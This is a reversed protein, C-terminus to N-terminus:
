SSFATNQILTRVARLIGTNEKIESGGAVNLNAYFMFAVNHSFNKCNSSEQSM